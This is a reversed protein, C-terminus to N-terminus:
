PYTCHSTRTCLFFAHISPHFPNIFSLTSPSINIGTDLPCIQQLEIGAERHPQLIALSSKPYRRAIGIISALTWSLAAHLGGPNSFGAQVPNRYSPIGTWVWHDARLCRFHFVCWCFTSSRDRQATLRIDFIWLEAQAHPGNPLPDRQLTKCQLTRTSIRINCITSAWQFRIRLSEFWSQSDAYDTSLWNKLKNTM